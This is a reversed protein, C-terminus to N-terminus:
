KEPVFVSTINYELYSMVLDQVLTNCAIANECGKFDCGGSDIRAFCRKAAEKEQGEANLVLEHSVAHFRCFRNRNVRERV